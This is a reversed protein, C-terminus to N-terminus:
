KSYKYSDMNNNNNQNQNTQNNQVLNYNNNNIQKKNQNKFSKSITPFKPMMEISQPFPNEYFFPHQIADSATIRKTPDYTLLQNLLDFATDSITPVLERLNNYPQHPINNLRKFNPLSSFGPWIQENPEGLLNFIRMIQDIENNGTILPRGILLEGFISGISWLDVATSYKQCGLLLEPSRYWLTVMCPTISEIPYGYKRALGFDALKLNGNNGYLLNSCKLDRHIIWHSHLYEVARLLQLLFCKIESLKFPKNINDILSAVDHELYEFVLYIKDGTSGIVVELLSVINPHKIEKLIQIERLSTLPIGDKDQQGIKVKKLAVIRGTEKDRGKYVIGYTGEGISDLKEFSLVSRM